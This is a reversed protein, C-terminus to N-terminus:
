NSVIIKENDQQIQDLVEANVTAGDLTLSQEFEATEQMVFNVYFLIFNHDNYYM